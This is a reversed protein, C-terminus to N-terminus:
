EGLAAELEWRSPEVLVRGDPFVITPVTRYGGSLELVTEAALPEKDIDVWVYHAHQSELVFKALTCDSCGSTAYVTITHDRPEGSMIELKWEGM